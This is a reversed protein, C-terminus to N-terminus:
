QGKEAPVRVRGTLLDNMLGSKLHKLKTLQAMESEMLVDHASLRGAISVQEDVKPLPVTFKRVEAVNLHPNTTGGTLSDIRQRVAGSYVQALLYGGTLKDARPRLLMVRQGLCIRMGPPIVFAEGVPAERTFIVDGPEPRLRAIREVFEEEALRSSSEEDYRGDRIHMTRAVLVGVTLYNPTSHPCDIVHSCCSELTEVTWAKPIRGLPSDKFQEPQAIPDRLQGNPDLGRSLLDHLLGARVQRLKAIVAETKAIAEDVTDLVVAIRSQEDVTEPVRLRLKMLTPPRIEKFTSGQSFRELVSTGMMLVAALYDAFVAEKNPIIGTIGQKTALPVRAVGVRGITAGTSVVVSQIPWVKANSSFVGRESLTEKTSTIDKRIDEIVAWAIGGGFNSPDNRPPTGGDGIDIILNEIPEIRWGDPIAPETRYDFLM